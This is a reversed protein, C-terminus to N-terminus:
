GAAERSPYEHGVLPVADPLIGISFPQNARDPPFHEVMDNHKFPV